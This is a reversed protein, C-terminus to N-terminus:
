QDPLQLQHNLLQQVMLQQRAQDPLQLQHNLLQQVV